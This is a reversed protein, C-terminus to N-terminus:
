YRGGLGLDHLDVRRYVGGIELDALGGVKRPGSGGDQPQDVTRAEGATTRGDGLTDPRVESAPAGTDVEHTGAEGGGDSGAEVWTWVGRGFAQFLRSQSMHALANAAKNRGRILHGRAEVLEAIEQYHIGRQDPDADRLVNYSRRASGTAASRPSAVKSRSARVVLAKRLGEAANEGDELEARLHIVRERLEEYLQM